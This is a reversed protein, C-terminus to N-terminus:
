AIEQACMALDSTAGAHNKVNGKVKRSSSRWSENETDLQLKELNMLQRICAISQAILRDVEDSKGAIVAQIRLKRLEELKELQQAAMSKEPKSSM